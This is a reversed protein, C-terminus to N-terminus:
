VCVFVNKLIKAVAGTIKTFIMACWTTMLDIRMEELGSLGVFSCFGENRTHYV